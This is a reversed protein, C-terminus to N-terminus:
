LFVLGQEQQLLRAGYPNKGNNQFTFQEIKSKITSDAIDIGIEVQHQRQMRKEIDRIVVLLVESIRM